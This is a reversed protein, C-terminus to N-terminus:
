RAEEGQKRIFKAMGEYNAQDTIVIGAYGEGSTSVIVVGKCRMCSAAFGPPVVEKFVMRHIARVILNCNPCEDQRPM